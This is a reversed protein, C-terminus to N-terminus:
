ARSSGAAAHVVHHSRLLGSDGPPPEAGADHGGSRDQRQLQLAHVLRAAPPARALEGPSRRHGLVGAGHPEAGAGCEPLRAGRGLAVQGLCRSGDTDRRRLRRRYGRRRGRAGPGTDGDRHVHRLPLRGARRVARDRRRGRAKRGSGVSVGAAARDGPKAGGDRAAVGLRLLQPLVQLVARHLGRSPSAALRLDQAQGWCRAM